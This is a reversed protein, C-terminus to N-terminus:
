LYNKRYRSKFLCLGSLVKSEFGLGARMFLIYVGHNCVPETTIIKDGEEQIDSLKRAKNNFVGVGTTNILIKDVESRRM